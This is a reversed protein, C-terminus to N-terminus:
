QEEEEKVVAEKVGAGEIWLYDCGLPTSSMQKRWPMASIILRRVRQTAALSVAYCSLMRLGAVSLPTAYPTYRGGELLWSYAMCMATVTPAAAALNRLAAWPGISRRALCVGIGLTIVAIAAARALDLRIPM